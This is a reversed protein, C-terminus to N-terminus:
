YELNSLKTPGCDASTMGRSPVVVMFVVFRISAQVAAATNGNNPAAQSCCSAPETVVFSLSAGAKFEILPRLEMLPSLENFPRLESFPRDDNLPRFDVSPRFEPMSRIDVSAPRM